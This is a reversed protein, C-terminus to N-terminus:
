LITIMALHLYFVVAPAGIPFGAMSSQLLPLSDMDHRVHVKYEPM